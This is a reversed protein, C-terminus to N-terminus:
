QLGGREREGLVMKIRAITRRIERFRSSRTLKEASGRLRLEFREKELEAVRGRLERSDLGRIEQIQKKM